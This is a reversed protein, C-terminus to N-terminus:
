GDASGGPALTFSFTAGQGPAGEGWIRGGHRAVVRHAIALGMGVGAPAGPHLRTFPQFLRDAHSMDFGQGNDRVFFIVEGGEARRGLEIRGDARGRTFRWANGLLCQCLRALLRADAEVELGEEVHVAIEGPEAARLAALVDHALRTLDVREPRLRATSVAALRTLADINATMAAAAERIHRLYEQGERELVAAYREELVRAFGEVARVPARLDHSLAQTLAGLERELAACRREWENV